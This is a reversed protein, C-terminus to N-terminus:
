FLDLIAYPRWKSFFDFFPWIEAVTQGIPMFNPVSVGIPWGFQAPLVADKPTNQTLTRAPTKATSLSFFVGFFVSFYSLLCKWTRLFSVVLGIQIVNQLMISKSLRIVQIFKPSSLNFPKPAAPALNQGECLSQYDDKCCDRLLTRTHYRTLCVCM